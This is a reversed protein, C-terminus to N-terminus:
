GSPLAPVPQDPHELWVTHGDPTATVGFRGPPPRGHATWWTYAAEAEAALRRPGHSLVRFRDHQHGDYDVAAWSTAAEDALWLRVAAGQADPEEDWSHWVGPLLHSLAFQADLDPGAIDWPSLVTTTETPTDGARLIDRALDVGPQLLAGPRRLPMYSGGPHFRGTATHDPGATLTLTGFPM